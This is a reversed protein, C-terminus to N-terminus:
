VLTMGTIEAEEVGKLKNIEATLREPATEDKEPVTFSAKIVEVGFGIPERRSDQFEGAKVKRLEKEAEAIKELDAPKIRFIVLMKGM